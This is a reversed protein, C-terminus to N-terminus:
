VPKNGRLTKKTNYKDLTETAIRAKTPADLADIINELDDPMAGLMASDWNDRKEQPTFPREEHSVINGKGDEVTHKFM